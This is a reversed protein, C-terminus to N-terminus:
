RDPLSGHIFWESVSSAGQDLAELLAGHALQIVDRLYVGITSYYNFLAQVAREDFVDAASAGAFPTGVVNAAVRSDLLRRLQDASALDPIVVRTDLHALVQRRPGYHSNVAVVLSAPLETIMRLVPGFFAPIASHHPGSQWRDTDDFILVPQLDDGAILRLLAAVLELRDEIPSRGHSQSLERVQRGLEPKLWGLALTVSASGVKEVSRESRASLRVDDAESPSIEHAVRAAALVVDLIRDAVDNPHTLREPPLALLPVLIPAILSKTPGLVGAVVSSKGSGSGGMIAIREGALVGRELRGEVRVSGLLEDFPVHYVGLDHFPLTADFAYHARLHELLDRSM